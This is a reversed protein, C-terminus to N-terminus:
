GELRPSTHARYDAYTKPDHGGIIVMQTLDENTAQEILHLLESQTGDTLLDIDAELCLQEFELIFEDVKKGGQRM